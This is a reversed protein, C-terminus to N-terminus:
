LTEIDVNDKSQDLDLYLLMRTTQMLPSGNRGSEIFTKRKNRLSFTVNGVVFIDRVVDM